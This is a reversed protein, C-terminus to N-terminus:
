EVPSGYPILTKIREASDVRVIKWGGATKELSMTQTENRDQYVYEVRIKVDRGDGDGEPAMVAVGKLAANTDQLYKQFAARSSESISQRLATEMSGAYAALYKNVDGNRAAELMAYVADQPTVETPQRSRFTSWNPMNWGNHRAVAASLAAALSLITLLQAIRQRNM